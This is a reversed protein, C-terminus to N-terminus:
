PRAARGKLLTHVQDHIADMINAADLPAGCFAFGHAHALLWAALAPVDRRPWIDWM